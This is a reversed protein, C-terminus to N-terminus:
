GNIMEKANEYAVKKAIKIAFNKDYEGNEVKKSIFDALLRRYFDFRVYSSFSRSDTLMGLQMGFAAYESVTEMQRKIGEVTDNFWWAAGIYVNKFAGSIAALARVFNDNLTYLIIKPLGGLERNAKDLVKALADTDVNGRFVDFGSDIGISNLSTTNVNRMTGFHLQLVIGNEHCEKILWMLNGDNEMIFDFGYDAIKCGKDIFYKLREKLISKDVGNKFCADPRFTPCIKIEDIEGHYNLEKLPDDTTAIYEVKFKHLLDRVTLDRLVSNAKNWIEEATDENLPTNIGFVSKLEMQAWYYVPNGILNPMIESFKFFKEKYSKNGTIYEEDVGCLRMVRWKYHDGSLWLEGIDSFRKNESIAKEDLHCHYDIIPLDKIKGYIEKASENTLLIDDGFFEKM